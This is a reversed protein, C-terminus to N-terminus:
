RTRSREQTRLQVRQDIKRRISTAIDTKITDAVEITIALAYPVDFDQVKTLRSVAQVNVVFNGDEDFPVARKGEYLAHILTGRRSAEIAPQFSARSAGDWIHSLGEGDVLDLGILRYNSSNPRIPTLWALTLVIRRFEASSSLEDPLPIRWAHRKGAKIVDQGLLTVRTSKPSVVLEHDVRGYGIARAVAEKRRALPGAATHIGTM